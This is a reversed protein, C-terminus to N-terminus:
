RAATYNGATRVRIECLTAWMARQIAFALKQAGLDAERALMEGALSATETM